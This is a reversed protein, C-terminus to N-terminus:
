VNCSTDKLLKAFSMLLEKGRQQWTHKQMVEEQLLQVRELPKEELYLKVREELSSHDNPKVSIWGQSQFHLDMGPTYTTAVMAGCLPGSFLRDHVSWKFQPCSNLIVSSQKTISLSEAYSVPDHLVVQAGKLYHDWSNKPRFSGFVHVPLKTFSQLMKVREVGRIYLGMLVQMDAYPLTYLDYGAQVLAKPLAELHSCHPEALVKESVAKLIRVIEKSFRQNWQEEITHYDWCSGLFSIPYRRESQVSTLDRADVALPHVCVRSFGGAQLWKADVPDITSLCAFDSKTHHYYCHSPDVLYTLHPVKVLDCLLKGGIQVDMFSITVDPPNLMLEQLMHRPEEGYCHVELGEERWAHALSRAMYSCAGYSDQDLFLGVTKFPLQSM